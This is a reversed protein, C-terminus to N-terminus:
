NNFSYLAELQKLKEAHSFEMLLKDFYLDYQKYDDSKYDLLKRQKEQDESCNSVTNKFEKYTYGM